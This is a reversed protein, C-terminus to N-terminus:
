DKNSDSSAKPRKFYLMHSIPVTPEHPVHGVAELPVAAVLEWGRAGVAQLYPRLQYAGEQNPTVVGWDGEETDVVRQAMYEWQM